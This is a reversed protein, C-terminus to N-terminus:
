NGKYLNNTSFNKEENWNKCIIYPLLEKLKKNTKNTAKTNTQSIEFLFRLSFNIKQNISKKMALKKFSKAKLDEKNLPIHHLFLLKVKKNFLFKNHDILFRKIKIYPYSLIVYNKNSYCEFAFAKPLLLSSIKKNNKKM